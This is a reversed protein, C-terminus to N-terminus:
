WYPTGAPLWGDAMMALIEEGPVMDMIELRDEESLQEMYAPVHMPLGERERKIKEHWNRAEEKSMEGWKNIRERVTM